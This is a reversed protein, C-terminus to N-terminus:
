KVGKPKINESDYSEIIERLDEIKSELLTKKSIATIMNKLCLISTMLSSDRMFTNVYHMAEKDPLFSFTSTFCLLAINAALFTAVTFGTIKKDETSIQSNYKKISEVKFRREEENM